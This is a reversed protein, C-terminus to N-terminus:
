FKFNMMRLKREGRTEQLHSAIEIITYGLAPLLRFAKNQHYTNGTQNKNTLKKQAEPVEEYLRVDM